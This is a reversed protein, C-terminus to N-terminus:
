GIADRVWAATTRLGHIWETDPRWGLTHEIRTIDLVNVPVDVSRAPRHVIPVKRGVVAAVLEAVELLSRGVGSGVNFVRRPGDYAAAALLARALDGVYLFDRVARGDGWVELERGSLASAIMAPVIGQRRTPSQYPGYPNAPRLVVSRLGYFHAYMGLYKEIALKGIGYASIPETPADEAIPVARPVGYVTGGSSVFVVRGVGAGRCIDLLQVSLVAERLAGAPDRSSSAPDSGGLLHFVVDAGRVALQLAARDAFEGASWRVGDPLAEPYSSPHGYGHVRAGADVLARSLHLGIFGGAGLVLCAAGDLSGIM